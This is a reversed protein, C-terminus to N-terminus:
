VDSFWTLQDILTLHASIISLLGRLATVHKDHKLSLLSGFYFFINDMKSTPFVYLVMLCKIVQSKAGNRRWRRSPSGAESVLMSRVLMMITHVVNPVVFSRENMIVVLYVIYTLTHDDLATPTTVRDTWLVQLAAHCQGDAGRWRGAAAGGGGRRQASTPDRWEPPVRAAAVRIKNM